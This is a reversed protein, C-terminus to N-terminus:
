SQDWPDERRLLQWHDTQKDKRKGFLNPMLNKRTTRPQASCLELSQTMNKPVTEVEQQDMLSTKTINNKLPGGARNRSFILM